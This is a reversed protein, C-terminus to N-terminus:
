SLLEDYSVSASYEDRVFMCSMEDANGYFPSYRFPNTNEKFYYTEFMSHATNCMLNQTPDVVTFSYDEDQFMLELIPLQHSTFEVDVYFKRDDTDDNKYCVGLGCIPKLGYKQLLMKSFTRIYHVNMFGRSPAIFKANLRIVPM